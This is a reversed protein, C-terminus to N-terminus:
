KSNKEQARRYYTIRPSWRDEYWWESGVRFRKASGTFAPIIETIIGEEGIRLDDGVKLDDPLPHEKDVRVWGDIQTSAEEYTNPDSRNGGQERLRETM